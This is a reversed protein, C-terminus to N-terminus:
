EDNYIEFDEEAQMWDWLTDDFDSDDESKGGVNDGLNTSADVMTPPIDERAWSIDEDDVQALFSNVDNVSDDFDYTDRPVKSMVYHLGPVDGDPIYFVQHVQSPMVYPDNMSCFKNVNVCTLGCKNDKEVQYWECKFLVVKFKSWYDLEIIELIAGYYTVEGIIPYKDRSSAFSPTSASLIVGSNQTKCRADRSKTYFNYGNVYYGKYRKATPSPGKALWFIHDPVNEKITKERM